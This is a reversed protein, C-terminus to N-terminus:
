FLSVNKHCNKMKLADESMTGDSECILVPTMRYEDIIEALPLYEPGYIEDAFTLHKLEGKPGYMIKSFHVHMNDTKKKGLKEYSLDIIRRYDDKSKLGGQLYCNIHGFDFCPILHEDVTCFDIIEEATGIQMTKGMTEPCIVYDDFDFTQALHEMMRILNDKARRTAVERSDKGCSAPHFVARLGGLKKVALVTQEVYSFTKAIMDPDPNALNTFYPAHASVAVDYEKMKQAIKEATEDNMKVGRGFSYEFANLGQEQLWQAAEYTHKRGSEYFSLSNGSPGIRLM